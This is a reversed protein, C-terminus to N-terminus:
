NPRVRFSNSLGKHGEADEVLLYVKPGHQFLTLEQVLVGGTFSGRGLVEVKGKSSRLIVPEQYDRADPGEARLTVRFPRGRVQEDIPDIRFGTIGGGVEEFPDTGGDGGTGGDEGSSPQGHLLPAPVVSFAHERLAQRGDALTLRVDYAGLKLGEPVPVTLTGDPDVFPTDVQHGGLEVALEMSTSDVSGEEYDVTVPLVASVQISLSSPIGAPVRDPTVALITPTPLAAPACAGLLLSLLACLARKM